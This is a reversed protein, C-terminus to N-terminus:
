DGDSDDELAALDAANMNFLQSAVKAPTSADVAEAQEEEDRDDPTGTFFNIIAKEGSDKEEKAIESFRKLPTLASIYKTSDEAVLTDDYLKTLIANTAKHARAKEVADAAAHAANFLAKNRSLPVAVAADATRALLLLEDPTFDDPSAKTLDKM